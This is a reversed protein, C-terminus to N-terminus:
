PPKSSFYGLISWRSVIARLSPISRKARPFNLVAFEGHLKKAGKDYAKAAETQDQYSGFYHMKRNIKVAAGWRKTRNDWYIGKYHKSAKAKELKRRHCNNQTHTVIRLNAKRNDLGNFNIHDVM